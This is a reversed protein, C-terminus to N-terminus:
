KKSSFPEQGKNADTMLANPKEAELIGQWTLTLRVM